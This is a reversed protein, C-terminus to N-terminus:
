APVPYKSKQISLINDQWTQGNLKLAEAVGSENEFQLLGTGKGVRTLKDRLVKCKAIKGCQLYSVNM